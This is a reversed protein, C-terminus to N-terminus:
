CTIVRSTEYYFFGGNQTIFYIWLSIKLNTRRSVQLYEPNSTAHNKFNRWTSGESFGQARPEERSVGLLYGLMKVQTNSQM